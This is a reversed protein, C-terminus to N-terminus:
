FTIRMSHLRNYWVVAKRIKVTNKNFKDRPNKVVRYHILEHFCHSLHTYIYLCYSYYTNAHLPKLRNSLDWSLTVENAKKDEHNIIFELLFLLQKMSFIKQTFLYFHQGQQPIFWSETITVTSVSSNWSQMTNNSHKFHFLILHSTCRAPV